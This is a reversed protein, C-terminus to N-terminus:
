TKDQRNISNSSLLREKFNKSHEESSNKKSEAPTEDEEVLENISGIGEVGKMTQPFLSM